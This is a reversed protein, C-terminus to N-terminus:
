HSQAGSANLVQRSYDSFLRNIESEITVLTGREDRFPMDPDGKFSLWNFSTVIVFKHDSVLIKAHTNGLRGVHFTSFDRELQELAKRGRKDLSNERSEQGIGYAIYVTVGKNLLARLCDQFKKDIVAARLWPSVILLRETTESLAKGLYDPHESVELFRAPFQDLKKEATELENALEDRESAFVVDSTPRRGDTEALTENHRLSQTLRRLDEHDSPDARQRIIDSSILNEAPDSSRKLSDIIGLKKSGAAQDFAREHAESRRGDIAFVVSIDKAQDDSQFILAVAKVFFSRKKGVSGTVEILEAGRKAADTDEFAQRVNKTEAPGVEPAETPFAPIELTGAVRVDRPRLRDHSPVLTFKRTLGDYCFELEVTRPVAESLERCAASGRDTLIYKSDGAAETRAPFILNRAYLGAMTGEIIDQSLALFSQLDKVTQLGAELSRLVFEDLVSVHKKDQIRAKLAMQWHPLAVERATLLRRGPMEGLRQIAFEVTSTTM